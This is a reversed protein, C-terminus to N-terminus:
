EASKIHEWFQRSAADFKDTADRLDSLVVGTVDAILEDVEIAFQFIAEAFNLLHHAWVQDTPDQHPVLTHAMQINRMEFLALVLDCEGDAADTKAKEFRAIFEDVRKAPLIGESKLGELLSAISATVGTQGKKPKELLRCMALALYRTLARRLFISFTYTFDVKMNKLADSLLPSVAYLAFQVESADDRVLKRFAELQKSLKKRIPPPPETRVSYGKEAAHVSFKLYADHDAFHFASYGPQIESWMDSGGALSRAADFLNQFEPAAIAGVIVAQDPCIRRM